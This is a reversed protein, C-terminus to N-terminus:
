RVVTAREVYRLATMSSLSLSSACSTLFSSSSVDLALLTSYWVDCDSDSRSIRRLSSQRSRRRDSRFISVSVRTSRSTFPMRLMSLSIRASVSQTVSATTRQRLLWCFSPLPLAPPLSAGRTKLKRPRLTSTDKAVSRSKRSALAAFLPRLSRGSLKSCLGKMTFSLRSCPMGSLGMSSPLSSSRQVATSSSLSSASSSPAPSFWTFAKRLIERSMASRTRAASRLMMRSALAFPKSTSAM